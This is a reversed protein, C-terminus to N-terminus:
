SYKVKLSKNFWYCKLMGFIFMGYLFYNSYRLIVDYYKGLVLEEFYILEYVFFWPTISLYYILCAIAIVFPFSNTVSLIKDTTLVSYFYYSITLVLVFTGVGDTFQSFSKFFVDSIILNLTSAFVFLWVVINIIQVHKKINVHMKFYMGLFFFALVSYINLIWDSRLFGAYDCFFNHDDLDQLYLFSSYHGVLETVSVICLYTTFWRFDPGVLPRFKRYTIIAILTALFEIFVGKPFGEFYNLWEM